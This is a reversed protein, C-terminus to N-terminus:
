YNFLRTRPLLSPSSLIFTRYLSLDLLCKCILLFNCLFILSLTYKLLASKTVEYWDHYPDNLEKYIVWFILWRQLPFRFFCFYVWFSPFFRPLFHSPFFADWFLWCKVTITRFKIKKCENQLEKDDIKAFIYKELHMLSCRKM